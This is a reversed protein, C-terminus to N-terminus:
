NGLRVITELIRKNEVTIEAKANLIQDSPIRFGTSTSPETPCLFSVAALTDTTSVEIQTIFADLMGYKQYPYASFKIRAPQGKRLAAAQTFPITFTHQGGKKVQFVVPAVQYEPIRIFWASIVVLVLVGLLMASGMRIIWPPIVGLVEQIERTRTDFIYKSNNNKITNM